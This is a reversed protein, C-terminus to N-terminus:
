GGIKALTESAIDAFTAKDDEKDDQESKRARYTVQVEKRRPLDKQWEVKKADDSKELEVLRSVIPELLTPVATAQELLKKVSENLADVSTQLASFREDAFVKESLAQVAADDVEVVTVDEEHSEETGKVDPETTSGEANDAPPETPPTPETGEEKDRHILNNEEISRNTDDLLGTFKKLLEENGGTIKRLADEIRKSAMNNEQEIRAATFLSCADKEPLFTTAMLEGDEYVPISIDENVQLLSPKSMPLFSISTGWFEPDDQLSQAMLDGLESRDFLGSIILINGERDVYDVSGVRFQEGLHFFDAYQKKPSAEANFREIMKDFLATSDIFGNRNLVSTCAMQLFRTGEATKQLILGNSVPKFEIMVEQWDGLKVTNSQFDITFPIKYLKGEKAAVAFMNNGDEVFIDTIYVWETGSRVAESLQTYIDPINIARDELGFLEAVTDKVTEWADLFFQLSVANEKAVGNAQAFASSECEDKKAGDKKMCTDFAGNWVHVWQRRKKSPMKKVNAPLKEDDPGSYPM